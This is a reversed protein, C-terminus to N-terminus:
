IKIPVGNVRFTLKQLIFVKVVDLKRVGFYLIDRSINLVEKIEKKLKCYKPTWTKNM